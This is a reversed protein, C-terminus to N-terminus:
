WLSAGGKFTRAFESVDSSPEEEQAASTETETTGVQAEADRFPSPQREMRTLWRSHLKVNGMGDSPLSKAKSLVIIRQSPSAGEWWELLNVAGKVGLIDRRSAIRSVLKPTGLRNAIAALRAFLERDGLSFDFPSISDLPLKNQVGDKMVKVPNRELFSIAENLSKWGTSLIGIQNSSETSVSIPDIGRLSSTQTVVKDLLGVIEDISYSTCTRIGLKLHPQTARAWVDMGDKSIHVGVTIVGGRILEKAREPLDIKDM